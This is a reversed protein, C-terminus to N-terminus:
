VVLFSGFFGSCDQFDFLGLIPSFDFKGGLMIALKNERSAGIVVVDGTTGVFLVSKL